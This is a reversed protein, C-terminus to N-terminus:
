DFHAPDNEGDLVPLTSDNSLDHSLRDEDRVIMFRMSM